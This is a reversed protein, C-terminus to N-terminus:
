RAAHWIRQLNAAYLPQALLSAPMGQGRRYGDTVRCLWHEITEDPPAHTYAHLNHAVITIDGPTRGLAACAERLWLLDHAFDLQAGGIADLSRHEHVTSLPATADDPLFQLLQYPPKGMQPVLQRELHPYGLPGVIARRSHPQAGIDDRALALHDTRWQRAVEHALDPAGLWRALLPPPYLALLSLATQVHLREGLSAVLDTFADLSAAAAGLPLQLDALADVLVALHAWGDDWFRARAAYTYPFLLADLAPPTLPDTAAHKEVFTNLYWDVDAQSWPLRASDALHPAQWTLAVRNLSQTAGRQTAHAAARDALLARAQALLDALDPAALSTFTKTADRM